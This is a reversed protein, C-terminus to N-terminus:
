DRANEKSQTGKGGVMMSARCSMKVQFRSSYITKHQCLVLAHHKLAQIHVHLYLCMLSLSQFWRPGQLSFMCCQKECREKKKGKLYSSSHYPQPEPNALSHLNAELTSTVSIPEIACCSLLLPSLVSSPNPNSDNCKAVGGSSAEAKMQVLLCPTAM